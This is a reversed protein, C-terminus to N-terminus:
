ATTASARSRRRAPGPSPRSRARDRRCRGTQGRGRPRPRAREEPHLRARRRRAGPSGADGRRAHQADPDAATPDRALIQRTAVLGSTGPMACDMVIVAPKLSAALAIAEDGNSAEGVVEISPDDELMRRFGRRVLSHDDALLVTIKDAMLLGGADVDDDPARSAPRAHRRRPPPRVRAHRRGAGARERMAVLGLGRRAPAGGFGKGHDEVELELVDPEFRLRVWAQQSGSHRAVNNLAEQLVRYVHIASPATSPRRRARGSMRYPLVWSGNWRRSIGTSRAARARGGRSDVPAAIQSLGRVNDLTTQAIEGIERLEARLPSGEPAHRGARSLM